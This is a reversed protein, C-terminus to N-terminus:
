VFLCCFSFALSALVFGLATGEPLEMRQRVGGAAGDYWGAGDEADVQNAYEVQRLRVAYVIFLSNHFAPSFFLLWEIKQLRSLL